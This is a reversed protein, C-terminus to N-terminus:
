VAARVAAPEDDDVGAHRVQEPGREVAGPVADLRDRRAGTWREAGVDDTGHALRAVREAAVARQRRDLDAVESAIRSM